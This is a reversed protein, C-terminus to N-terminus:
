WWYGVFGVMVKVGGDREPRPANPSYALKVHIRMNDRIYFDLNLGIGVVWRSENNDGTRLPDPLWAIDVQPTIRWWMWPVFMLRLHALFFSDVAFEAFYTGSLMPIYDNDGGIKFRNLDDAFWGTGASADLAIAIRSHVRVAGEMQGMVRVNPNNTFGVNREDQISTKFGGWSRQLFRRRLSVRFWARFGERLRGRLVWTNMQRWSLTASSRLAPSNQPLVFGAQESAPSHLFFWYRFAVRGTLFLHSVMNWQMELGAEGYMSLFSLEQLHVGGKIYDPTMEAFGFQGKIYPSIVFSRGSTAGIDWNLWVTETNYGVRLQNGLGVHKQDTYQYYVIGHGMGNGLDLPIGLGQNLPIEGYVAFDHGAWAPSSVGVLCFWLLGLGIWHRLM